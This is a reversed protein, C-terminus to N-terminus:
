LGVNKEAITGHHADESAATKGHRDPMFAIHDMIRENRSTPQANTWM